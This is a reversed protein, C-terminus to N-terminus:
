DGVRTMNWNINEISAFDGNMDSTVRLSVVDGAVVNILGTLTTTGVDGGSGLKRKAGANSQKVGDVFIHGEFTANDTGSFSVTMDTKYVGGGVMTMTGADGDLTINKSSGETFGTVAQFTGADETVFGREFIATYDLYFNHNANGSTTHEIKVKSDTGSIYDSISGALDDYDFIFVADETSSIFDRADSTFRDWQALTYNWAYILVIHAANGEYRGVIEVRGPDKALTFNIEFEFGPSGTVEGVHYYVGDIAKTDDVTGSDLTGTNLTISDATKTNDGEQYLEGYVGGFLFDLDAGLFRYIEDWRKVYEVLDKNAATSPMFNIAKPIKSM